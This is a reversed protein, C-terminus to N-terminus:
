GHRNDALRPQVGSISLTPEQCFLTLEILIELSSLIEGAAEEVHATTLLFASLKM